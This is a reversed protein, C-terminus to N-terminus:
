LVKTVYVNTRHELLCKVWPLYIHLISWIDRPKPKGQTLLSVPLNDWAVNVRPRSNEYISMEVERNEFIVNHVTMRVGMVEYYVWIYIPKGKLKCGWEYDATCM